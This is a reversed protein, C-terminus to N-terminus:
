QFSADDYEISVSEPDIGYASLEENQFVVYNRTHPFIYGVVPSVIELPEQGFRQIKMRFIVGTLARYGNYQVLVQWASPQIPESSLLVSNSEAYQITQARNQQKLEALKADQQQLTTTLAADILAAVGGGSGPQVNQNQKKSFVENNELIEAYNSNIQNSVYYKSVKDAVEKAQKERDSNLPHDSLFKAHNGETSTMKEWVREGAYPDYGALACYVVAIRDAESEQESSFAAQFSERNVSKSKTLSKAVVYGQREFIHNAVTHGMEHAIVNALESDDKLDRELKSYIVFYTGGTTFANWEDKEILVPTWNEDRVHSVQHLKSFIRVIRDYSEKNYQENIRAGSEKEEKIIKEAAENGEKIQASRNALSITRDGTVKDTQTTADVVQYLGSDIAKMAECGSLLTIALVIAWRNKQM